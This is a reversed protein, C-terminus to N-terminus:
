PADDGRLSPAAIGSAAGYKSRYRVALRRRCALLLLAVSTMAVSSPEPSGTSIVASAAAEPATGYAAKVNALTFNNTTLGYLTFTAAGYVFPYNNSLSSNPSSAIGVGNGPVIGNIPNGVKNGSFLGWGADGMGYHETYATGGVTFGTTSYANEWAHAVTTCLPAKSSSAQGAACIDAGASGATITSGTTNLLGGTAVASLMGTANNLESGNSGILDFFLGELVQSSQNAPNSSTNSLVIQLDFCSTGGCHSLTADSVVSFAATGALLGYTPDQVSWLYTSSNAGTPLLLIAGFFLITYRNLV